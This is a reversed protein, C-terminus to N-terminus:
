RLRVGRRLRVDDARPPRLLFPRSLGPGHRHDGGRPAAGGANEPADYGGGVVGGPYIRLTVKGGSVKKWEEGMEQLVRHWSSGEPALTAMKVVVPGAHAPVGCPSLFLLAAGCAAARNSFSSM